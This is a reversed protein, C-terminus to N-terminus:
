REMLADIGSTTMGATVAVPSASQASSVGDYFQTAYGAAGCGSSFKLTYSGPALDGLEYGGSTTTVAVVPAAGAAQAIATVCIGAVPSHAADTVAGSIGGYASLRADVGRRTQGAAVSVRTASAQSPQGDFWQPAVGAFGALCVPSFLVQYSGPSLGSLHYSGNSATWAVRVFGHGSWPFATVCVGPEPATGSGDLVTGTLSGTRPLRVTVGTTARSRRVVIGPRIVGEAPPQCAQLEYRGARLHRLDYSGTKSTVALSM